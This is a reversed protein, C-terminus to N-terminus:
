DEKEGHWVLQFKLKVIEHGPEFYKHLKSEVYEKCTRCYYKHKFMNVTM